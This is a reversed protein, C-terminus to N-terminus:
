LLEGCHPCKQLEDDFKEVIKKLNRTEELQRRLWDKRRESSPRQLEKKIVEKNRKLKEVFIDKFGVYM